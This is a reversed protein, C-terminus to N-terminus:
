IELETVAYTTLLEAMTQRYVSVKNVDVRSKKVARHVYLAFRPIASM